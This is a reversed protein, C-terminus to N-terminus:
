TRTCTGNPVRALVDGNSDGDIDGPVVLTDYVGWDAAIQEPAAFPAAATGTGKYLFNRGSTDRALVDPRGDGSYDGAGVLANCANWGSTRFPM